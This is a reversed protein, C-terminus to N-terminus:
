KIFNKMLTYESNNECCLNILILNHKSLIILFDDIDKENTADLEKVLSNQSSIDAGVM